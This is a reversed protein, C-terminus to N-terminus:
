PKGPHYKAADLVRRVVRAMESRTIPKALFGKIGLADAKEKDIRESFGTCIVIPIDARISLAAEALQVGTMDPMSMDTLLLDFAYPNAEFAALADISHLRSIVHYGMRELMQKELNAIAVDDDVLLIRENGRHITEAGTTPSLADQRALLPLFVDFTTGKGVESRVKIDGQHEKIIGYAM